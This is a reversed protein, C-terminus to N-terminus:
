IHILSLLQVRGIGDIETMRFVNDSTSGRVSSVISVNEKALSNVLTSKGSNIKGFVGIVIKDM